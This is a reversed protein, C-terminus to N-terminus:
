PEVVKVTILKWAVVNDGDMVQVDLVYNGAEEPTWDLTSGVSVPSSDWRDKRGEKFTFLRYNVGENGTITVKEGVKVEIKDIKVADVDANSESKFVYRFLYADDFGGYNNKVTGETGAAKVRVAFDYRAPKSALTEPIEIEFPQFADVPETWDTLVSWKSGDIVEDRDRQIYFVKYQVKGSYNKSTFTLKQKEGFKAESNMIGVFGVSPLKVKPVNADPKDRNDEETEPIVIVAVENSKIDGYKAYIKVTGVAKTKFLRGEVYGIKDDSVVWEVNETIDKTSGDEMTAVAKLADNKKVGVVSRNVRLTLEKVNAKKVEITKEAAKGEFVAKVTVKGTYDKDAKYIGKNITGHDCTWSAKDTADQTKGDSYEVAAIFVAEGGPFIESKNSSITLKNVYPVTAVPPTYSPPTYPPTDPPTYPPTYPEAMNVTVEARGINRYEDVAEVTIKNKGYNGFSVVTDFKNDTLEADVGNVKVTVPTEDVVNGTVRISKGEINANDAPSTITVVPKVKDVLEFSVDFSSSSSAEAGIATFTITEKGYSDYEKEYLFSGDTLTVNEEGAKLEVANKVSGRISVKKGETDVSDIFIIPKNYNKYIEVVKETENGVLDTVEITAINEGKTIPMEYEFVKEIDSGDGTQSEFSGLSQGNVCVSYGLTDKVSFSLKITDDDDVEVMGKSPTIMTVVPAETDNYLKIRYENTNGNMDEMTFVIDNLGENLEVLNSTFSLEDTNINIDKGNVKLYKLPKNFNGTFTIAKKSVISGSVVEKGDDDFISMAFPAERDVHVKITHSAIISGSEDLAEFKVINLGDTLGELAISTNKGNDIPENTNLFVLVNNFESCENNIEYELTISTEKTEYEASKFKLPSVFVKLLKSVTPTEEAGAPGQAVLADKVPDEPMEKKYSVKIEIDNEGFNNFAADASFNGEEDLTVENDNVTVKTIDSLDNYAVSGTVRVTKESVTENDTPSNITIIPADFSSNIHIEKKDENGALDKALIVGNFKGDVIPANFVYLNEKNKEVAKGNVTVVGINGDEVEFVIDYSAAGNNLNFTDTDPSILTIVPNVTDVVFQIIDKGVINDNVKAEFTISHTGDALDKLEIIGSAPKEQSEGDDVTVFLKADKYKEKISYNISIDKKNTYPEVDDHLIVTNDFEVEYPESVNDAYDVAMVVIHNEANALEIEKEKETGAVLMPKVSDNVFIAYAAIGVNDSGNFTIKYKNQTTKEGKPDMVPPTVDLNVPMDLNQYAAGKYDVKGALRIFYKGEPALEYEGIKDNYLTGDWTWDSKLTYMDKAAYNKRVDSDTYINRLLKGKDDLVQVNLEKANRMMSVVPIVVDYYGDGNPSFSGKEDSNLFDYEENLLGTIGYYSSEDWMPADFIRSDKDWNGYYGMYAVGIDPNKEKDKSEFSIFGEAFQNKPTGVPITLTATVEAEKKAPVTISEKNFTLSAGGFNNPYPLLYGRQAYTTLVGYKDKVDFTLDEDGMNKLVITFQRTNGIEKLSIAAGGFEDKAYAYVKTNVADEINILGAGQQRTLYPLGTEPEIQPRATNIMINKALEVFNRKGNISSVQPVAPKKLHEVLLAMTGSTHPAAMSTGSMDGYKDNNLTSYIHGGPATVEPKFRLDPTTGWSSFDSMEGSVDNDLEAMEGTFSVKVNQEILGKLKVGDSYRIFVAPIEISPDSAMSIFTDDNKKNYVIVGAAGAKQANIKKEVFTANGRQILAIKGALDKGAFEGITGFGCDVIETKEKLYALPDKDDSSITYPITGSEEVAEFNLVPLKLKTNEISAVQLTDKYLGPAGVLGMDADMTYPYYLGYTSYASNGGSVVCIVGADVANKIAKQEPDDESAFGATSGLSMNIVDAGHKVSSDIAATIDDSFAGQNKPDNSFVKMAFLQAEPAVGLVEGNAAVIGSVHMGHMSGSKDIVEQNLDAFNYGYPVKDTFFRGEDNNFLVNDKNFKAKSLDTIKMDKHTYDIGTDVIAVVTGEGKLNNPDGWVKDAGTMKVANAMDLYYKKAITVKKVGSIERINDIDKYKINVSFGNLVDKYTHRIEGFSQVKSVVAKQEKDIDKTFKQAAKLSIKQESAKESVSKGKLEVIVRVYEDPKIEGNNVNDKEDDNTTQGFIQSSANLKDLEKEKITHTDKKVEQLLTTKRKEYLEDKKSSIEAKASSSFLSLMMMFCLLLSLGKKKKM